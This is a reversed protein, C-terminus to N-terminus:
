LVYTVMAQEMPIVQQSHIQRLSSSYGTLAMQLSGRPQLVCLVACDFFYFITNLANEILGSKMNTVESVSCMHPFFGEAEGTLVESVKELFGRRLEDPVLRVTVNEGVFIVFRLAFM